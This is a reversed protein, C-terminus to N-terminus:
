PLFVGSCCGIVNPKVAFEPKRGEAMVWFRDPDHGVLN